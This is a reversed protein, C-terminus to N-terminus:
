DDVFRLYFNGYRCRCRQRKRESFRFSFVQSSNFQKRACLPDCLLERLSKATENADENEDAANSNDGSAAVEDTEYEDEGAVMHIDGSIPSPQVIFNTFM